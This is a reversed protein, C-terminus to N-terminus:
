NCKQIFFLTVVETSRTIYHARDVSPEMFHQLVRFANHNVTIFM